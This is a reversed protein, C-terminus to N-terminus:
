ALRACALIGPQKGTLPRQLGAGAGRQVRRIRHEALRQFIVDRLQRCPHVRRQQLPQQLRAGLMRRAQLLRLVLLRRQHCQLQRLHRHPLCSPQRRRVHQPMRYAFKCRCHDGTHHLATIRQHQRRPAPLQHGVALRAAHRRYAIRRLVDTAHQRRLHNDRRLIARSHRHHRPRVRRQRREHLPMIRM